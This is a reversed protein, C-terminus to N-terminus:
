NRASVVRVSALSSSLVHFLTKTVLHDYWHLLDSHTHHNGPSPLSQLVPVTESHLNYQQWAQATKKAGRAHVSGGSPQPLMIPPAAASQQANYAQWAAQQAQQQQWDM